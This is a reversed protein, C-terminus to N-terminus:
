SRKRSKLNTEFNLIKGVSNLNLAPGNSIVWNPLINFLANLQQAKDAINAGNIIINADDAYLIFKACNFICIHKTSLTHIDHIIPTM